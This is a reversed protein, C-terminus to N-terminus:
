YKRNTQYRLVSHFDEPFKRKLDFKRHKRDAKPHFLKEPLKKKFVFIVLLGLFHSSYCSFMKFNPDLVFINRKIM